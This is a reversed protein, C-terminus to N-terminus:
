FGVRATVRIDRGALPAYDKLLSAHRRATADFINNASLGLILEPKDDLPRWNLAANVLTFGPTDTEGPATRNQAFSREVELRGDLNGRKGAVAGLLRLPPIQPAPGFNKVTARVADAVGEVSWDIGALKGVRAEAEVEFGYYRASGQRYTYVPLDDEVGGTAALFIYNSFKSMYLAAAFTLPGTSRKLSAEFSLSKEKDFDPDGIEFAQTGAHPGNAFLEDAAPARESHSISLGARINAGVLYSAGVSGSLTTFKRRMEPTGLDLDQEATLRSWEIRGGVEARLPGRELTELAFMGFQRTRNEPLFKEEGVIHVKKNLYQAGFAGGWGSRTRQVAELRGEAGDSFFTSAVTGDEEIEQHRYDVM